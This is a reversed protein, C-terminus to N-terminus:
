MNATLTLSINIFYYEYICYLCLISFFFQFTKEDKQFIVPLFAILSVSEKVDVLACFKIITMSVGMKCFSEFKSLFNKDTSM